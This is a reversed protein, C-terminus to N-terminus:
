RMKHIIRTLDIGAREGNPPLNIDMIIVQCSQYAEYLENESMGIIFNTFETADVFDRVHHGFRILHNKLSKRQLLHDEVLWINYRVKLTKKFRKDIIKLLNEQVM